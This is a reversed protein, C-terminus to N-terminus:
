RRRWRSNICVGSGAVISSSEIFKPESVAPAVGPLLEM